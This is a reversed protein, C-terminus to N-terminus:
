ESVFLTITISLILTVIRNFHISTDRILRNNHISGKGEIHKYKNGNRVVDLALGRMEINSLRITYDYYRCDMSETLVCRYVEQRENYWM